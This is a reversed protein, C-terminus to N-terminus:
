PSASSASNIPLYRWPIIAGRGIVRNSGLAVVLSVTQVDSKLVRMRRMLRSDAGQHRSASRLRRARLRGRQFRRYNTVAPNLRLTPMARPTRSLQEDVQDLHNLYIHASGFTHVFDGPELGTVHALMRTLLAYSAINFPVGLFM